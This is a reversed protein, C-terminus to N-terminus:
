LAGYTKDDVRKIMAAMADRQANARNIENKKLNLAEQAMQSERLKGYGTSISGLASLGEKNKNLFDMGSGALGTAKDWLGPTAPTGLNTVANTGLKSAAEVTPANSVVNPVADTVAKSFYSGSLGDTAVSDAVSPLVGFNAATSSIPASGGGSFFGALGSGLSSIGSSISSFLDGFM